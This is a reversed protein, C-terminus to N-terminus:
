SSIAMVLTFFGWSFKKIQNVEALVQLIEFEARFMERWFYQMPVNSNSLKKTTPINKSKKLDSIYFQFM